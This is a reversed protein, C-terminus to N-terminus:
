PRARSATRQAGSSASPKSRATVARPRAQQRAFPLTTSTACPMSAVSSTSSEAGRRLWGCRLKEPAKGSGWRTARWWARRSRESYADQRRSISSQRWSARRPVGSDCSRRAPRRRWSPSCSSSRSPSPSAPSSSSAPALARAARSASARASSSAWAPRRSAARRRRRSASASRASAPPGSSATRISSTSSSQPARSPPARKGPRGPEHPGAASASRWSGRVASGTSQSVSASPVCSQRGARSRMAPAGPSRATTASTSSSPTAPRRMPPAGRARM